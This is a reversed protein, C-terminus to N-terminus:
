NELRQGLTQCIKAVAGTLREVNAGAQVLPVLEADDFAGVVYVNQYFRAQEVRFGLPSQM